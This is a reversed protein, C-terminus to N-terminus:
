LNNKLHLKILSKTFYQVFSARLPANIQPMASCAPFDGTRNGIAGNSYEILM